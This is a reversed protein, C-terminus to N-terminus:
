GRRGRRGAPRPCNAPPVVVCWVAAPNGSGSAPMEWRDIYADGMKKLWSLVANRPIGLMESVQGATLGDPCARLTQRIKIQRVNM